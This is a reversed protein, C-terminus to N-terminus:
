VMHDSHHGKVIIAIYQKCQLTWRKKNCYLFSSGDNALTLACIDAPKPLPKITPNKKKVREGEGRRRYM